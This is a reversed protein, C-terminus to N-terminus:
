LTPIAVNESITSVEDLQIAHSNESPRACPHRSTACSSVALWTHPQRFVTAGKSTDVLTPNFGKDGKNGQARAPKFGAVGKRPSFHQNEPHQPSAITSNTENTPEPIRATTGDTENHEVSTGEPCQSRM